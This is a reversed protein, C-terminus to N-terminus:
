RPRRRRGSAAGGSSCPGGHTRRGGRLRADEDATSTTSAAPRDDDDIRFAAAFFACLWFAAAGRFADGYSGSRDRVLGALYPGVVLGPAMSSFLLGSAEPLHAGDGAELCAKAVPTTLAILGGATTGVVLAYAYLAAPHRVLAPLVM